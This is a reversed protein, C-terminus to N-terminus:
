AAKRYDYKLLGGLKQRRPVSGNAPFEVFEPRIIKNELGQHNRERHYHEAFQSVAERLSSEGFLIMNDLCSERITRLTAPIGRWQKKPDREGHGQPGRAFGVACAHLGEELVQEGVAPLNALTDLASIAGSGGLGEVQESFHPAIADAGQLQERFLGCRRINSGDLRFTEGGTRDAYQQVLGQPPRLQDCLLGWLEANRERTRLLLCCQQPVISCPMSRELGRRCGVDDFKRDAGGRMPDIQRRQHFILPKATLDETAVSDRDRLVPDRPESLM